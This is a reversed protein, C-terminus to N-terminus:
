SSKKTKTQEDVFKYTDEFDRKSIAYMDNPNTINIYGGSAITMESGWLFITIDENIQVYIQIGGTPKYVDSGNSDKEYKKSFTSDDIIWQNMHGNNDIVVDLNEDLKTVVMGTKGNEDKTVTAVKEKVEKGESDVSWSIVEEGVIGRRASIRAFKEAKRPVLTGNKLGENVYKLIDVKKYESM